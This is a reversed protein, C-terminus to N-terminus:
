SGGRGAAHRVVRVTELTVLGDEIMADIRPMIRQINAETDVAELIMPLDQSLRLLNGTHLHSAAGFGAVGRLVTAGAIKEKRLMEMLAQYLPRGEHRDNEGLFIRLLVQEGELERMM